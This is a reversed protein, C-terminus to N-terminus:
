PYVCGDVPLYRQGARQLWTLTAGSLFQEATVRPISSLLHTSADPFEKIELIQFDKIERVSDVNITQSQAHYGSCIRLSHHALLM